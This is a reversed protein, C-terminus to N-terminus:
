VEEEQRINSVQRGPRGSEYGEILIGDVNAPFLSRLSAPECGLLQRISVVNQAKEVARANAVFERAYKDWSNGCPTSSSSASKSDINTFTHGYALLGLLGLKLGLLTSVNSTKITSWCRHNDSNIKMKKFYLPDCIEDIDAKRFGESIATRIIDTDMPTVNCALFLAEWPKEAAHQACM